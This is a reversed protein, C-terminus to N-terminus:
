GGKVREDNTQHISWRNDLAERSTDDLGLEKLAALAALQEETGDGKYQTDQIYGPTSYLSNLQTKQKLSLVLHETYVKAVVSHVSITNQKHNAQSAILIRFPDSKQQSNLSVMVTLLLSPM